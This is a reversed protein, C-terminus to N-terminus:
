KKMVARLKARKEKVNEKIEEDSAEIPKKTLIKVMGKKALEKFKHKVIKDEMSHFSIIALIGNNNLCSLFNDLFMSLNGIDNNVEIRLARFTPTAWHHRRSFRYKPSMCSKIIEVLEDATEIRKHGRYEMIRRAINRAFVREGYDFLIRSIKEEHYENVIKEATLEQSSDMRMDLKGAFGFGREEDELQYTSVGLDILIGDAGDIGYKDLISRLNVFNDTEYIIGEYKELNKRAMEIAKKDRDIGIVKYGSSLFEMSHGGMGLTCDAILGNERIDKFINLVEKVLVPKHKDM